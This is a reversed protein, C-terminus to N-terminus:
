VPLLRTSLCVHDSAARALVTADDRRNDFIMKNRSKWVIYLSLLVTTNKLHLNHLPLAEALLSVGTPTGNPCMSIWLTSLHPCIFFMHDIDKPASLCFPCTEVGMAM